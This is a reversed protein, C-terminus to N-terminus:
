NKKVSNLKEKAEELERKAKELEEEARKIDDEPDGGSIAYKLNKGLAKIREAFTESTGNFDMHLRLNTNSLKCEFADSGHSWFMTNGKTTLGDNGLTKLLYQKVNNYRAKDFRAKISYDEDTHSISISSSYSSSNTTPPKPPEPAETQANINMSFLLVLVTKVLTQM